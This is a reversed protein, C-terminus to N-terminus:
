HGEKEVVRISYSRSLKCKSNVLKTLYSWLCLGTKCNRRIVKYHENGHEAFGVSIGIRIWFLVARITM